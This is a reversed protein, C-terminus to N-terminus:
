DYAGTLGVRAEKEEADWMVGKDIGGGIWAGCGRFTSASEDSYEGLAGGDADSECIIDGPETYLQPVSRTEEPIADAAAADADGPTVYRVGSKARFSMIAIVVGGPLVAGLGTSGMM